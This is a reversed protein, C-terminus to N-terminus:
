AALAKAVAAADPIGERPGYHQCKLSAAASAFRLADKLIKEAAWAFAFAGRYVDGAGTADVVPTSLPEVRIPEQGQAQGVSGDEGLTVVAIEPGLALIETLSNPTLASLERAFRESAVVAQCAAVLQAMGPALAHASLLTKVGRSRAAQVLALQAEPFAGDVVLVSAGDLASVPVEGPRLKEADGNSWFTSRAHRQQDIVVFAVPSVGGEQRRLHRLDIGADALGQAAFDGLFDDPLRGGFTVKAGLRALTVATTAAAGGGQLAFASLEQRDVHSWPLRPVAGVFQVSAQGICLAAVGM